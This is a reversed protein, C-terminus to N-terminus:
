SSYCRGGESTPGKESNSLDQATQQRKKKENEPIAGDPRGNLGQRCVLVFKDIYQIFSANASETM